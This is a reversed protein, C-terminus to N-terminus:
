DTEDERRTKRKKRYFRKEWPAMDRATILFQGAPRREIVIVLLRGAHTRAYVINFAARSRAIVRVPDREAQRIEQTSVAHKLIHMAANRTIIITM